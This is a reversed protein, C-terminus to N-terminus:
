IRSGYVDRTEHEIFILEGPLDGSRRNRHFAARRTEDNVGFTADRELRRAPQVGGLRQSLVNYAVQRAASPSSIRM